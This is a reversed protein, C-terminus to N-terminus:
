FFLQAFKGAFAQWPASLQFEWILHMALLIGLTILYPRYPKKNIVDYIIFGIALADTLLLSYELALPFPMGGYIIMARGIGPGLLLFSTAIMYRMHYASNKKYVMALIYLTGFAVIDPLNLALSGLNQEKPIIPALRQFQGKTVLFISLLLLPILVYSVKGLNRHMEYKKYRILFPQVILMAFWSLMMLGHFHQVTTVGSFSPFLGFYPRYFGWIVFAFIVVVFYSVNQYTKEM